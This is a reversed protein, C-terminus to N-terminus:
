PEIELGVVLLLMGKIRITCDTFCVFPLPVFIIRSPHITCKVLLSIDTLLESIM